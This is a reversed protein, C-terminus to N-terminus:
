FLSLVQITYLDCVTYTDGMARLQKVAVMQECYMARYVDSYGGYQSAGSRSDFVIGDIYLAEPLYGSSVSLRELIYLM